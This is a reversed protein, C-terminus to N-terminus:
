YGLPGRLMNHNLFLDNLTTAKTLYACLAAASDRFYSSQGIQNASLDLMDLSGSLFEELKNVIM